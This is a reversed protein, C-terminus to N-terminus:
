SKAENRKLRHRSMADHWAGEDSHVYLSTTDIREHRANRKLYRLEIGSDAQHTLSTHRLWHTSAQELVSAFSHGEREAAKAADRLFNKIIRYIMNISIGYNGALNLVLPTAENPKPLPSMCWFTRYRKLVELMDENVPVRALKEGKGMVRWWWRDRERYFSGMNHTALESVRPGLLYLIGILFHLREKHAKQRKTKTPLADLHELVFQWAEQDLYREPGRWGKAQGRRKKRRRLAMLNGALYGAEVLYTFMGHLIVLAQRRSSEKLPGQFPRWRRDTRNRRPGCWQAKPSPNKLFEEYALLDERALSSLPKGREILAWLLLRESEKRYTRYTGPSDAYENLWAQIAEYDTDAELQCLIESRNRNEGERGDLGSPPALQELPGVSSNSPNAPTIKSAM